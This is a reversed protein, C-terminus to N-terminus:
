KLHTLPLPTGEKVTDLVFSSHIDKIGTLHPLKKLAFARYAELDPVVVELLFDYEGSVLYCSVVEPLQSIQRMFQQANPEHHREMRISVFVTMQLGITKRDLRARYGLIVGHEELQRVRRLCPAPSLAVQDALKLNTVRADRQLSELIKLDFSDIHSNRNTHGTKLRSTKKM